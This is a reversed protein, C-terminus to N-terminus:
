ERCGDDTMFLSANQQDHFRRKSKEPGKDEKHDSPSTGMVDM